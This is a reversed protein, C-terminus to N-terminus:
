TMDIYYMSKFYCRGDFRTWIWRHTDDLLCNVRAFALVLILDPAFLALFLAYEAAQGKVFDGFVWRQAQDTRSLRFMRSLWFLRFLFWFRLLFSLIHLWCCLLHHLGPLSQRQSTPNCIIRSTAKDPSSFQIICFTRSTRSARFHAGPGRM